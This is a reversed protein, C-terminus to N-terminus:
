PAEITKIVQKIVEIPVEKIVKASKVGKTAAEKATELTKSSVAGSGTTHNNGCPLKKGRKHAKTINHYRGEDDLFVEPAISAPHIPWDLSVFACHSNFNLRLRHGASLSYARTQAHRWEPTSRPSVSVQCVARPGM